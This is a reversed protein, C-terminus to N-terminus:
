YIFNSITKNSNHGLSYNEGFGSSYVKSKNTLALTHLAGCAIDVVVESEKLICRKNESKKGSINFHSLSKVLTPHPMSEFHGLGLQGKINLGWSYVQYNKLTSHM